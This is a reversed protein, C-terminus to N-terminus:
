DALNKFYQRTQVYVCRRIIGSIEQNGVRQGMTSSKNREYESETGNSPIKSSLDLPTEELFSSLPLAQPLQTPMLFSPWRNQTSLSNFLYTFLEPYQTSVHTNFSLSPLTPLSDFTPIHPNQTIRSTEPGAQIALTSMKEPLSGDANLVLPKSHKNKSLHQRLSHCYKAAYKCESCRYQYVNTHSKMHSNLMSKNVCEYNCKECKYPKEKRHNREHYDLHHKYETVFPCYRCNLQREKKIHIRHHDWLEEKTQAMFDCQRCYYTKPKAPRKTTKGSFNGPREESHFGEIHRRLRGETRSTYDCKPCHYEYHTRLHLQFEIKSKGTYSCLHCIYIGAKDPQISNTFIEMHGSNRENEGDNTPLQDQGSSKSKDSTVSLWSPSCISAPSNKQQDSETCPPSSSSDIALEFSPRDSSRSTSHLRSKENLTSHTQPVSSHVVDVPDDKPVKHSSSIQKIHEVTTKNSSSLSEMPPFLQSKGTSSSQQASEVPSSQNKPQLSGFDPSM